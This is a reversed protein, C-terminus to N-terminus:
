ATRIRYGIIEGGLDVMPKVFDITNDGYEPDILRDGKTPPVLFGSEILNRKSIVFEYGEVTIEEVTALDRSFNSPAAKINYQTGDVLSQIIMDRSQMNLIFNFANKISM